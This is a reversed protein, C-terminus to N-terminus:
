VNKKKLAFEFIEQFIGSGVLDTIGDMYRATTYNQMWACEGGCQNRAPGHFFNPNVSMRGAEYAEDFTSHKLLNINVPEVNISARCPWCIEGNSWIHPKLSTFCNYPEAFLLRKLLTESGILKYGQRKRQLILEALECYQPNNLLIKNPEHKYNVPVPVFWLDLDCALDLVARAEDITDPTIVTNVALKFKTVKRLERLLLLNIVVQQAQDKVGWLTDLMSVNLADLSVIVIDMQWLFNKWAPDQLRKHFLSSNTNIMNPFFGLNWAYDLLEPLDNRLTPEGGCWYIPTTGTYIVDLLRKGQETNLRDPDPIDFYHKGQHNDCYTCRFNCANLMTWISYLPRLAHNGKRYRHRNIFYNGGMRTLATVKRKIDRYKDLTTLQADKKIIPKITEALRLAEEMCVELNPHGPRPQYFKFDLGSNQESHRKEVM